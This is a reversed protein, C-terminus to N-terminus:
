LEYNSLNLSYNLIDPTLIEPLNNVMEKLKDYKFRNICCENCHCGADAHLGFSDLSTYKPDLETNRNLIMLEKEPILKCIQFWERDMKAPNTYGQFLLSKVRDVTQLKNRDFWEQWYRYPTGYVPNPLYDMLLSTLEYIKHDNFLNLAIDAVNGFCVGGQNICAHQYGDYHQTLNVVTIQKASGQPSYDYQILYRGIPRGVFPKFATTHDTDGFDQNENYQELKLFNTVIIVKPKLVPDDTRIIKFTKINLKYIDAIEKDYSSYDKPKSKEEEILKSYTTLDKKLNIKDRKYMVIQEELSELKSMARNLDQEASSITANKIKDLATYIKKM